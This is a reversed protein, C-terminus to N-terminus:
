AFRGKWVTEAHRPLQRLMEAFRARLLGIVIFASVSFVSVSLALVSFAAISFSSVSTFKFGGATIVSPQSAAAISIAAWGMFPMALALKSLPAKKVPLSFSSILGSARKMAM